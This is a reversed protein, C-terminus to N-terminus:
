DKSKKISVDDGFKVMPLGMLDRQTSDKQCTETLRQASGEVLGSLLNWAVKYETQGRGKPDDM